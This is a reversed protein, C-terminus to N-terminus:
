NGNFAQSIPLGLSRCVQETTKMLKRHAVPESELVGDFFYKNEEIAKRTRDILELEAKVGQLAILISEYEKEIEVVQEWAQICIDLQLKAFPKTKM